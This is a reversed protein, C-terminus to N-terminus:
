KGGRGSSGQGHSASQGHHAPQSQAHTGTRTQVAAQPPPDTEGAVNLRTQTTVELRHALMQQYAQEAGACNLLMQPECGVGAMCCAGDQLRVRIQSRVMNALRLMCDAGMPCSGDLLQIRVQEQLQQELHLLLPADVLELLDTVDAATQCPGDQLNLQLQDGAQDRIYACLQEYDPTSGPQALVVPVIAAALALVLAASLIRRLLRNAM